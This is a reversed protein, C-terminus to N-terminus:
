ASFSLNMVESRVAYSRKQFEADEAETTPFGEAVLSDVLAFCREGIQRNRLVVDNADTILGITLRSASDQIGFSDARASVLLREAVRYMM